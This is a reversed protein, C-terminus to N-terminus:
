VCEKRAALRSKSSVFVHAVNSMHEVIVVRVVRLVVDVTDTTCATSTRLSGCNGEEGSLTLRVGVRLGPM